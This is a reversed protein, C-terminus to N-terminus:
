LAIMSRRTRADKYVTVFREQLFVNDPETENKSDDETSDDADRLQGLAHFASSFMDRYRVPAQGRGASESASDDLSLAM